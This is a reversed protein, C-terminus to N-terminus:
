DPLKIVKRKRRLRRPVHPRWSRPLRLRRRKIRLESLDLAETAHTDLMVPTAPPGGKLLNVRQREPKLLDVVPPPVHDPAPVDHPRERSRRLRDLGLGAAFGGLVSLVAGSARRVVGFRPRRLIRMRKGGLRLRERLSPRPGDVAVETAGPAGATELRTARERYWTLALAAAIAPVGVELAAFLATHWPSPGITALRGRTVPGGSLTAAVLTILAMAGAIGAGLLLAVPLRPTRVMRRVAVVGALAGAAPAILFLVYYPWPAAGGPLGGLMPLGPLDGLRVGTPSVNTGAGVSFGPGLVYAFTWM